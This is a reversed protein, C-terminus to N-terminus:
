ELGEIVGDPNVKMRAAAPVKPLGPMRMIDGTLVVIFGAGSNVHLNRITVEFDRPRGHLLPDDSLSSPAKAICIPLDTLGLQEIQRLDKEAQKTFAIDDAGYMEQCVARIKDLIPMELQYLPEFPRSKEASAMVLKALELAGKGGDAHHTTVACSVGHQECRQKILAIEDDSDTAFRNIAVVPHKNFHEVSEIHKDLNELGLRLAEVDENLLDNRAKGGHMKLARVTTVLVVADPDLNGLRCKIDFFKEAGLDFGFGAETIAWDAYHMAMRTAVLSNCGHAINAFPGGHVFAPTGEFSQVLNPHLADRLLAMMAGTINLQRAYIPEGSYSYAALTNDLRRHLDEADSALCLMAMVESAATIDFGGERPIGQGKGGLGVVIHRLSRDNMDMVRRWVIQRPDIGLENGHFIHNDISASLLNNASTIAHFDGTFHLNIRDAPMIQSYGGGTAGGKMGLCPGLSPERLAMCVSEGLQTFAQGLGITTTTKGEGSATPTTASILVLRNKGPRPRPAALANLDIKCIDRGYHMRHDPDIKLTDAIDDIPRATFEKAIEIDTPM